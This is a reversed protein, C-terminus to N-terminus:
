EIAEKITQDKKEIKDLNQLVKKKVIIKKFKKVGFTGQPMIKEKFVDKKLFVHVEVDKHNKKWDRSYKACFGAAEKLEKESPKKEGKVNVFPSGAAKTHLLIENEGAQRVLMENQEANKGALMVRNSSTFGTRFRIEKVNKIERKFNAM